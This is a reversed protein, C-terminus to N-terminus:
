RGTTSLRDIERTLTEIEHQLEKCKRENVQKHETLKALIDNETTQLYDLYEDGNLDDDLLDIDDMNDITDINIGCTKCAKNKSNVDAIKREVVCIGKEYEEIKVKIDERFECDERLLGLVVRHPYKWMQFYWEISKGKMKVKRKVNAAEIVNNVVNFGKLMKVYNMKNSNDNHMALAVNSMNDIVRKNIYVRNSKANARKCFRKLCTFASGVAFANIVKIVNRLLVYCRHVSPMLSSQHTWVIGNLKLASHFTCKSMNAQYYNFIYITYIYINHVYM